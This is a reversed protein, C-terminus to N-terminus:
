RRSRTDALRGLPIGFLTYFIAFSLGMLLSIKTDGIELDRQIPKVLFSMIQRDILSVIYATTLVAVVYWAYGPGPFEESDHPQSVLSGEHRLVLCSVRRSLRHSRTRSYVPPAALDDAQANRSEATATRYLPTRFPREIPMLPPRRNERGVM